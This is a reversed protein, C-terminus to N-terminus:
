KHESKIYIEFTEIFLDPNMLAMMISSVGDMIRFSKGVGVTISIDKGDRIATLIDMEIEKIFLPKEENNLAVLKENIKEKYNIPDVMMRLKALNFYTSLNLKFDEITVDMLQEQEGEKLNEPDFDKEFVGQYVNSAKVNFSFKGLDVVEVHNDMKTEKNKEESSIDSSIKITLEDTGALAYIMDIQYLLEELEKENIEQESLEAQKKFDNELVNIIESKKIRINNAYTTINRKDEVSSTWVDGVRLPISIKGTKDFIKVNSIKFLNKEKVYEVDDYKILIEEDSQNMTKIENKIKQVEVDQLTLIKVPTAPEAKMIQANVTGVSLLATLLLIKKM